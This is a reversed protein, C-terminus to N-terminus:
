GLELGTGIGHRTSASNGPGSSNQAIIKAKEYYDEFKAQEDKKCGWFYAIVLSAILLILVTLIKARM